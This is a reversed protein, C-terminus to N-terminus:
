RGTGNQRAVELNGVMVHGTNVGIRTKGFSIGMQQQRQTFAHAFRDMALACAVAREAHNPQVVPASFM